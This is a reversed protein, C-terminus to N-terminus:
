GKKFYGVLHPWAAPQDFKILAPNQHFLWFPLLLCPGGQIIERSILALFMYLRLAEM